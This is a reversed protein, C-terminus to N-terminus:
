IINRKFIDHLYEDKPNNLVTRKEDKIYSFDLVGKDYDEIARVGDIVTLMGFVSSDVTYTIVERLKDADNTSLGRYWDSLEIDRKAPSRGTPEKLVELIDSITGNRVVEIIAEVFEEKNM